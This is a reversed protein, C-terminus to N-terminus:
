AARRVNADRGPGDGGATADPEVRPRPALATVIRSSVANSEILRRWVRPASEREFRIEPDRVLAEIQARTIGIDRLMHDNLRRLSQTTERRNQMERLGDVLWKWSRATIKRLRSRHKRRRPREVVAAGTKHNGWGQSNTGIFVDAIWFM